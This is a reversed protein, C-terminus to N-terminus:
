KQVDKIYKGNSKFWYWTTQVNELRNKDRQKQFQKYEDTIEKKTQLRLKNNWFDILNSISGTILYPSLGTQKECNPCFIIYPSHGYGVSYKKIEQGCKCPLLEDTKVDVLM